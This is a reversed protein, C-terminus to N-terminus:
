APGAAVTEALGAAAGIAAGGLPNEVGGVPLGDAGPVKGGLPKLPVGAMGAAAGPPEDREVM